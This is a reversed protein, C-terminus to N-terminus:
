GRGGGQDVSFGDAVAAALELYASRAPRSLEELSSEAGAELQRDAPVRVVHRCRARFHAEVRDLDVASRRGVGNIVAVSSAVLDAHGNRELWDLTSSATRSSDLSPGTVLVLQDALRLIGRSASELVGTGTDMCVLNYHVELLGLASFFDEERLADTIGPDDDAAVVELRTPAQSTYARIDAYRAIESRHALLSVITNTTERRVRYALSGADPNGDIAVVRDGVHLVSAAAGDRSLAEVRNTTELVPTGWTLLYATLLVLALAINVAPGALIVVIRKWPKQRYYARPAVEPPLAEHPNMGSIKVYGGLPVAGVAYETEGRRVRALLPPFFLSFREVRMGVAKAAAFHGLEHLIILVAFGLFALLWSM